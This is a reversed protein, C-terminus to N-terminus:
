GGLLLAGAGGGTTAVGPVGGVGTFLTGNKNSARRARLRRLSTAAFQGAAFTQDRRLQAQLAADAEDAAEGQLRMGREAQVSQHMFGGTLSDKTAENSNQGKNRGYEYQLGMGGGMSAVGVRFYKRQTNSLGIRAGLTDTNERAKNVIKGLWSM